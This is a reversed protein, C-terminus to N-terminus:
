TFRIGEKPYKYFERFVTLQIFSESLVFAILIGLFSFPLLSQYEKSFSCLLSGAFGGLLAPIAISFISSRLIQKIMIPFTAGMLYCVQIRKVQNSIMHRIATFYSLIVIAAGIFLIRSDNSYFLLKLNSFSFVPVMEHSSIEEVSYGHFLTLFEKEEEPSMNSITYTGEWLHYPNFVDLSSPTHNDYILHLNALSSDIAIFCDPHNFIWERIHISLEDNKQSLGQSTVTFTTYSQDLHHPNESQIVFLSCLLLCTIICGLFGNLICFWTHKLM